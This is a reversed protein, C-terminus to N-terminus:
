TSMDLARVMDKVKRSSPSGGRSWVEVFPPRPVTEGGPGGSREVGEEASGARGWTPEGAGYKEAGAARVDVPLKERTTIADRSVLVESNGEPVVEAREQATRRGM